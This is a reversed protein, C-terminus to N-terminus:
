EPSETIERKGTDTLTFRIKEPCRYCNGKSDFHHIACPRQRNNESAPVTFSKKQYLTM